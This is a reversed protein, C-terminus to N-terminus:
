EIEIGNERLRLRAQLDAKQMVEALTVPIGGRRKSEDAAEMFAYIELTEEIAVPSVGTRFFQVIEVVLPRYGGYPGIQEIGKEGFAVGGYGQSGKRLGRFTGVRGGKWTGVALDTDPQSVRVVRECGTGMVTFLTEVGHIGYWFFDPHTAELACPSYADCGYILGIKGKRLAQAGSSYRLSSSSFLPVDLQKAAYAIALADALSGALPKDIFVPKGARLVPLVQELHPRGDNSELLVADVQTVLEYISDVIHVGLKVMEKTYGPVRSVSSEIDASGQPYAVTVPCNAVEPAADSANLVKTFAVAHSTDLGIIGVRITAPRDEEGCLQSSWTAVLV